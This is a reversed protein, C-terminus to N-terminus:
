ARISVADKKTIAIDIEKLLYSWKTRLSLFSITYLLVLRRLQPFRTAGWFFYEFKKTTRCFFAGSFESAEL